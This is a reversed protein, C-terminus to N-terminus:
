LGIPGYIGASACNAWPGTYPWVSDRPGIRPGSQSAPTVLAVGAPSPGLETGKRSKLQNALDRTHFVFRPNAPSIVMLMDNANILPLLAGGNRNPFLIQPLLSPGSVYFLKSFACLM